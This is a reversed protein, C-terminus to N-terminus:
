NYEFNVWSYNGIKWRNEMRKGTVTIIISSTIKKNKDSIEVLQCKYVTNFYTNNKIEIDLFRVNSFEYKYGKRKIINKLYKPFEEHTYSQINGSDDHYISVQNILYAPAFYQLIENEDKTEFLKQWSNNMSEIMERIEKEENSIIPEKRPEPVIVGKTKLEKDVLEVSDASAQENTEANQKSGHNCSVMLLIIWFIVSFMNNKKM